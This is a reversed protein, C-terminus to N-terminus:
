VVKRDPVSVMRQLRNQRVTQGRETKLAAWALLRQRLDDAFREPNTVVQRAERTILSTSQISM